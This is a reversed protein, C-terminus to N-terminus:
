HSPDIGCVYAIGARIAQLEQATIKPVFYRRKGTQDRSTRFMDLRNFAVTAMMDIKAWMETEAFAQSIAKELVIKHVYPVEIRPPTTSLPVVTCLSGRHPLHRCVVIVPRRKVMEPERFGTNYDCLLISGAAVPYQIPM